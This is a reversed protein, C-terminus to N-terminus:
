ALFGKNRLEDELYELQYRKLVNRPHPQHLRIIHRTAENWFAARSGSTRGKKMESYGFAKLLTRLEDYTFDKPKSLFRKLLKDKGSMQIKDWTRLSQLQFYTATGALSKASLAMGIM